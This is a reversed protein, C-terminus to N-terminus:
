SMKRYAYNKTVKKCCFQKVICILTIVTLVVAFAILCLGFDGPFESLGDEPSETPKKERFSVTSSLSIVETNDIAIQLPTKRDEIDLFVNILCM